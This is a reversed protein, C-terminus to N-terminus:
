YAIVYSSFHDTTFTITRAAPDDVGGMNELPQHTLPTVHWVSLRRGATRAEACRSYDITVTVPADFLFHELGVATVDVKMFRSAPVTLAFLTPAPVAGSPFRVANTGLALVGGLPGVLGTTSVTTNTPCELLNPRTDGSLIAGPQADAPRATTPADSCGAALVLAALLALSRLHPM